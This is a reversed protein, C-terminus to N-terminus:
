EYKKKMLKSLNDRLEQMTFRYRKRLRGFTERRSTGSPIGLSRLIEAASLGTLREAEAVTNQGTIVIESEEEERGTVGKEKEKHQEEREQVRTGTSSPTKPRTKEPQDSSTKLPPTEKRGTKSTLEVASETKLIQQRGLGEGTRKGYQAYSASNKPL